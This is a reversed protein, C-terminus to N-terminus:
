DGRLFTGVNRGKKIGDEFGDMYGRHQKYQGYLAITYTSMLLIIALAFAEIM